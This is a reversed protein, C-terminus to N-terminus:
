WAVFDTGSTTLIKVDWGPVIEGIFGGILKIFFWVTTKSRESEDSDKM